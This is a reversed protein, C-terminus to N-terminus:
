SNPAVWIELHGRPVEAPGNYHPEGTSIGLSKQVYGALQTAANEDAPWYYRVSTNKLHVSVQLVDNPVLYGTRERLSEVLSEAREKLVPIGGTRSDAGNTTYEVYVTAKAGTVDQAVAATLKGKVENQAVHPLGNANKPSIVTPTPLSDAIKANVADLDRQDKDASLVYYAFRGKATDITLPGDAVESMIISKALADVEAIRLANKTEQGHYYLAILALDSRKEDSLDAIFDHVIQADAVSQDFKTNLSQTQFNLILVLLATALNVVLQAWGLRGSDKVEIKPPEPIFSGSNSM